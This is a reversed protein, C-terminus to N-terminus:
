RIGCLIEHARAGRARVPIVLEPPVRDAFLPWLLPTETFAQLPLGRPSLDRCGSRPCAAHCIM